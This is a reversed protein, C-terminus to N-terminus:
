GCAQDRLAGGRPLGYAAWLRRRDRDGPVAVASWGGLLGDAAGYTIGYVKRHPCRTSAKAVLCYWCAGCTGHVDLFTVAEGGRLAQGEVERVEGRVEEIVGVNAHGPILPYPTEALLGQQLHLDTGCVESYRVRLLAAGEELEPRPFARVEVSAGPAPIVAARILTASACSM